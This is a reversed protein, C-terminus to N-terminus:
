KLWRVLDQALAESSQGPERLIVPRKQGDKIEGMEEGWIAAVRIVQMGEYSTVIQGRQAVVRRLLRHVRPDIELRSLGQRGEPLIVLPISLTNTLHDFDAITLDPKLRVGHMGGILGSTLGVTKACVGAQRLASLIAVVGTEEFGDAIILLTCKQSTNQTSV